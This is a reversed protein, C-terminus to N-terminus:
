AGGRAGRTGWLPRPRPCPCQPARHWQASYSYTPHSDASLLTSNPHPGHAPLLLLPIHPPSSSPCSLQPLYKWSPTRHIPGLPRPCHATIPGPPLRPRPRSRRRPVPVIRFVSELEIVRARRGRHEPRMTVPRQPTGNGGIEESKTFGM